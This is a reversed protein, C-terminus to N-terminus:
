APPFVTLQRADDTWDGLAHLDLFRRIAAPASPAEVGLKAAAQSMTLWGEKMKESQVGRIRYKERTRQVLYGTWTNGVGTRMGMRNLTAAVEADLDIIRAGVFGCVELLHEWDRGNRALRTADLCLVAGVMDEYMLTLLREFGPREEMGSATRGLDNDITDVDRFGHHRAVEVLEYQRRQSELNNIVQNPSSQRIYVVAKRQLLAAPLDGSKM